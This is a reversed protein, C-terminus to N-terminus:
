ANISRNLLNSVQWISSGAINQALTFLKRARILDGSQGLLEILDGYAETARPFDTLLAEYHVLAEDWLGEKILVRGIWM